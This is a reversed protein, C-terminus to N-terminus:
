TASARPSIVVVATGDGAVWEMGAHLIRRRSALYLVLYMHGVVYGWCYLRIWSFAEDRRCSTGWGAAGKGLYDTLFGWASRKLEPEWSSCDLRWYGREFPRLERTQLSPKFRKELNLERALTGLVETILDDPRLERKDTPPLPSLIELSSPVQRPTDTRLNSSSSSSSRPAIDSKSRALSGDRSSGPADDTSLKPRKRALPPESEARSSSATEAPQSPHSPAIRADKVFQSPKQAPRHQRSTKALSPSHRITPERGQLLRQEGAGRSGSELNQRDQDAAQSAENDYQRRQSLPSRSVPSSSPTPASHELIRTPTCYLPLAISNDPMSDQIISPPPQWSQQTGHLVPDTLVRLRPSSFNNIADQFSLRPSEIVGQSENLSPGNASPPAEEKRAKLKPRHDRVISHAEARRGIINIRSTSEFELYNAALLRYKKDDVVRAPASIHVLIETEPRSMNRTAIRPLNDHLHSPGSPYHHINCYECGRHQSLM